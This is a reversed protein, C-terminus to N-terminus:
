RTLHPQLKRPSVELSGGEVLMPSHIAFLSDGFHDVHIWFPRGGFPGRSCKHLSKPQFLPNATPSVFLESTAVPHVAVFYILKRGKSGTQERSDPWTSPGIGINRFLWTYLGSTASQM